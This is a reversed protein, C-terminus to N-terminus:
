FLFFRVFSFRDKDFDLIWVFPIPFHASPLFLAYIKAHEVIRAVLVRCGYIETVLVDVRLIEFGSIRSGMTM